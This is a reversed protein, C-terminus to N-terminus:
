NFIFQNPALKPWTLYSSFWYSATYHRGLDICVARNDQFYLVTKPIPIWEAMKLHKLHMANNMENWVLGIENENRKLVVIEFNLFYKM